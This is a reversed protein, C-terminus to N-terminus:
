NNNCFAKLKEEIGGMLAIISSEKIKKSAIRWKERFDKINAAEVNMEKLERKILAWYREIPRLEPCNAPNCERPVLNVANSEFWEKAVKSYHCSALDPWFFAPTSHKRILPLLRKQLCEKVYIEGNITGETVFVASRFGCTCIAQWVMFRKPFKSKQQTRFEEAVGGRENAVYFAQGPLQSFKSLVYTEDDMICCPFKQFFEMQLKKARGRAELSKTANRDPVKQVKYTKLGAKSKVRGVKTKSCKVKKAVRRESMGPDKTFLAVVKSVKKPSSFGEKRGSGVKRTVGLNENFRRIIKSVASQSINAKNAITKQSWRPNEKQLRIVIKRTEEQKLM